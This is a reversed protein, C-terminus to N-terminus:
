GREGWGLVPALVKMQQAATLGDDPAPILEGGSLVQPPVLARPRPAEGGAMANAVGLALVVVACWRLARDQVLAVLLGADSQAAERAAGLVRERLESPPRKPVLGDFPFGGGTM